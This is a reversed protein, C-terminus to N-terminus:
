SAQLRSDMGVGVSASCGTPRLTVGLQRQLAMARIRCFLGLQISQAVEDSRLEAIVTLAFDIGATVGGGTIVNGDRVVRGADPIAGFLSLM